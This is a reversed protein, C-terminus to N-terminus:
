NIKDAVLAMGPAELRCRTRSIPTLTIVTTMGVMGPETSDQAHLTLTKGNVRWTGQTRARRRTGIMRVHDVYRGNPFFQTQGHAGNNTTQWTGVLYEQFSITDSEPETTIEGSGGGEGTGGQAPQQDPRMSWAVVIAGVFIAAIIMNRKRNDADSTAPSAGQGEEDDTWDGDDVPEEPAFYEEQQSDTM